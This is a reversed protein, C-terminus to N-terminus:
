KTPHVPTESTSVPAEAPKKRKRSRSMLEDIRAKMKESRDIHFSLDPVHRKGTRELLEHRIYGRAAM